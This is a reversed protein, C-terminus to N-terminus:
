IKEGPIPAIHYCFTYVREPLRFLAILLSMLLVVFFARGDSFGITSGFVPMAEGYSAFPEM